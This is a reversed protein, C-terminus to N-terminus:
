AVLGRAWEADEASLAPRPPRAYDIELDYRAIGYVKHVLRNLDLMPEADDGRLPIPISPIPDRVGFIYLKAGPRDFGRSVLIRYDSRVDPGIVPMPKGARLLDIEVLNTMSGVVQNRKTEYDKRGRGHTKNVPSLVEITTILHGRATRIELYSEHVEGVFPVEVELVAPGPAVAQVTPPAPNVRKRSLIAVDPLGILELDDPELLYTRRNLRTLYQPAILPSLEDSMAAILRDHLDAWIESDELYPDMGPFPSRM